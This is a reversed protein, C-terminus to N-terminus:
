ANSIIVRDNVIDVKLAMLPKPPPGAVNKGSDPDYAGGHCACWIKNKEKRYQVTCGLHTCVAKFAHFDGQTTHIVLAPTSGFKFNKGSGAPFDSVKGIDLSAIKSSADEEGNPCLYRYVPYLTMGGWLLAFGGVATKVFTARGIKKDGDIIEIEEDSM